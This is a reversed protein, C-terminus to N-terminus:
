LRKIVKQHVDEKSKISDLLNNKNLKILYTESVVSEEEHKFLHLMGTYLGSIAFVSLFSISLYFGVFGMNAIFFSHTMCIFFIFALSLICLSFSDLFTMLKEYGSEESGEFILGDKIHSLILWVNYVNQRKNNLNLSHLQHQYNFFLKIKEKM